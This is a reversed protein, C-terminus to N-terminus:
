EALRKMPRLNSSTCLSILATENSTTGPGSPATRNLTRSLGYAGSSIEAKTSRLSAESAPFNRPSFTVSATM